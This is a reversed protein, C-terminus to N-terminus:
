LSLLCGLQVVVISGSLRLPPPALAEGGNPGYIKGEGEKAFLPQFM